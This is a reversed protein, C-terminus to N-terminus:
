KISSRVFWEGSGIFVPSDENFPTVDIIIELYEEYLGDTMGITVEYSNPESEYDVPSILILSAGYLSFISTDGSIVTYQLGVGDPDLCPFNAVNSNVPSTENVEAHVVYSTCSPYLDNVDEVTINVSTTASALTAEEVAKLHLMFFMSSERDLNKNVRIRGSSPNIVFQDYYNGMVISYMIRGEPTDPDDPDNANVDFVSTGIPSSEYVSVAFGTMFSPPGENVNTVFVVVTVTSSMPMPLGSDQVVILLTYKKETEYDLAGLDFSM